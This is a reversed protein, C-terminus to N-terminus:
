FTPILNAFYSKLLEEIKSLVIIKEKCRQQGSIFKTTNEQAILCCCCTHNSVERYLISWDFKNDLKFICLSILINLNLFFICINQITENTFLQYIIDIEKMKVKARTTKGYLYFFFIDLVENENFIIYEMCQNFCWKKFCLWPATM